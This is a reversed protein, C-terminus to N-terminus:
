PLWVVTAQREPEARARHSFYESAACATCVGADHALSVGARSLSAAVAAPMDLAPTGASTHGRVDDGLGGAVTDLDAPSFEYCEVHICPGLAATIDTAGAQRMREATRELIGALLGRWGAHAVGIVGEPSAMAVPACDATFVALATGRATSVLGDGEAGAGDGPSGVDVVHDGHVQRLWSWPRDLM